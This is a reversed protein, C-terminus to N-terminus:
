GVACQGLVVGARQELAVAQAKRRAHAACGGVLRRLGELADAPRHDHLQVPRGVLLGRAPDHQADRTGFLRARRGRPQAPLHEDRVLHGGADLREAAQRAVGVVAGDQGDSQAPPRDLREPQGGDRQCGEVLVARAAEHGLRGPQCLECARSGDVRECCREDRERRAASRGSTASTSM